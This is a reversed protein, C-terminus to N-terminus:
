KEPRISYVSDKEVVWVWDYGESYAEKAMHPLKKKDQQSVVINDIYEPWLYCTEYKAAEGWGFADYPIVCFSSLKPYDDEIALIKVRNVPVPTAAIAEKAM